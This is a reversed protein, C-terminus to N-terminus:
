VPRACVIPGSKYFRLPVARLRHAPPRAGAGPGAIGLAIRGASSADIGRPLAADTTPDDALAPV